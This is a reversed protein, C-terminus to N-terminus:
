FQPQPQINKFNFIKLINQSSESTRLINKFMILKYNQTHLQWKGNTRVEVESHRSAWAFPRLLACCQQGLVTPLQQWKNRPAHLRVCCSWCQQCNDLSAICEPVNIAIRMCPRKWSALMTTNGHLRACCQQAVRRRDCFLLCHQSKNRWFNSRNWVIRLLHWCQQPEM